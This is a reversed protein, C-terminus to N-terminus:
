LWPNVAHTNASRIHLSARRAVYLCALVCSFLLAPSMGERASSFVQMRVLVIWGATAAVCLAALPICYTLWVRRLQDVHIHCFAWRLAAVSAVLACVKLQFLVAGLVQYRVLAAHDAASVFPLRWGGFFALALVGCMAVLYTWESLLLLRARRTRPESQRLGVLANPERAGEPILCAGFLLCAGLAIPSDFAYFRWPEGAQSFVIEDARLSGAMMVVCALAAIIPLQYALVNLTRLLGRSLSWHLGRADRMVGGVFLNAALLLTMSCLVLIPLDLERAVLSRGLSLLTFAATVFIFAVYPL